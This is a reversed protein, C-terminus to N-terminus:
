SLEFKTWSPVPLSNFRRNASSHGAFPILLQWSVYQSRLGAIGRIAPRLSCTIGRLPLKGLYPSFPASQTSYMLVIGLQIEHKMCRHM